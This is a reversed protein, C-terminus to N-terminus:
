AVPQRQPDIGQSTDRGPVAAEIATLEDYYTPDAFRAADANAGILTLDAVTPYRLSRLDGANVQTHGSFQRLYDDVHSSNLYIVLGAAIDADLPRGHRHLYNLHNEIAVGHGSSADGEYLAAVVRRREEKATFRKVLVYPGDPVLLRRAAAGAEEISVPKKGNKPSWLVKGHRLHAPYLLPITDDAPADRLLNTARFDVVPGTSVGIGLDTLTCEMRGLFAAAIDANADPVVHIFRETDHPQIVRSYPVTRERMTSHSDSQATVVVLDPKAGVTLHTILNEQLVSHDSFAEDRADFVHLRRLAGAGLLFRRFNTFYTGNCFSRPTIAVVDAGDRGMRIAATWFAAYINPVEAGLARALKRVESGTNIKGYPPNLIVGDYRDGPVTLLARADALFDRTRIDFTFPVNRESAFSACRELVSRLRPVLMPDIEYATVHLSAPRDEQELLYAVAHAALVGVGAGADLLRYDRARSALMGAMLTAITSPTFYQAHARQTVPDLGAIADRRQDEVWTLFAEAIM